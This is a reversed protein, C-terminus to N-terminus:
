ARASGDPIESYGKCNRAEKVPAKIPTKPNDGGVCYLYHRPGRTEHNMCNRCSRENKM